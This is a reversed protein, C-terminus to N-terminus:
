GMALHEMKVSTVQLLIVCFSYRWHKSESITIKGYIGVNELRGEQQLWWILKIQSELAGTAAKQPRTVSASIRDATAPILSDPRAALGFGIIM